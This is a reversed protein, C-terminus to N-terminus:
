LSSTPLYRPQNSCTGAKFIAVTPADDPSNNADVVGGYRIIEIIDLTGNALAAVVM